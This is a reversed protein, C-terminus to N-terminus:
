GRRAMGSITARWPGRLDGTHVHRRAAEIETDADVFPLRLRASLRRGVTSKGAGMMGVLVILRTGLASAIEAELSASASAPIATETM